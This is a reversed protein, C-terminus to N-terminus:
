SFTYKFINTFIKKLGCGVKLFYKRFFEDKVKLTSSPMQWREFAIYEYDKIIQKYPERYINDPGGILDSGNRVWKKGSVIIQKQYNHYIFSGLTEYESFGSIEKFDILNLLTNQYSESFKSEIFNFFNKAWVGKCPFCQAIFSFKAIKGLGLLKQTLDFYPLHAEAGTFFEVEGSSRFFDIKKLPVNDADWIVYNEYERAKKLVSLKIFQQLYWGIRGISLPTFKGKLIEKLGPVFVSEPVIKFMRDTISKFLEFDSDPVILLYNKSPVFNLLNKSTHSWVGINASTCVSYVLDPINYGQAQDIGQTPFERLSQRKESTM